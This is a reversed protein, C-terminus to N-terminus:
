PGQGCDLLRWYATNILAKNQIRLFGGVRTYKKHFELNATNFINSIRQGAVVVDNPKYM